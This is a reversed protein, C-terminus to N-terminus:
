TSGIARLISALVLLAATYLSVKLRLCLSASAM